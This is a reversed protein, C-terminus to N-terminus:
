LAVEEELRQKMEKLGVIKVETKKLNNNDGKVRKIEQELGLKCIELDKLSKNSSEVHVCIEEVTKLKQTINLLETTLRQVHKERRNAGFSGKKYNRLKWKQKLLRSLTPELKIKAQWMKKELVLFKELNKGYRLLGADNEFELRSLKNMLDRGEGEAEFVRKELGRINEELDSITELSEM